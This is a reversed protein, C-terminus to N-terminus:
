WTPDIQKYLQDFEQLLAVDDDLRPWQNEEPVFEPRGNDVWDAYREFLEATSRARLGYEKQWEPWDWGLEKVEDTAHDHHAINVPGDFSYGAQLYPVPASLRLEGKEGNITWTLGPQEKFPPGVRFIALLTAGPVVVGKNNKLTGHISVYDPVDSKVSGSETEDTGLVKLSPRQVYDIMHGYHINIPHEGVSRDAFYTLREPLSGRPILNGYARIESNFIKGILGTALIEKLRLTLPAVRGQLGVISNPYPKGETLELGKALNETLPWEVFVGKGARVSPEVVPFHVDARTSVVVLDIDPRIDGKGVSNLLAVLEYHQKGRSSLLYPLHADATWTVKTSASLGVLAVRIPAM